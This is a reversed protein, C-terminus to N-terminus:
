GSDSPHGYSAKDLNRMPQQDLKGTRFHPNVEGVEDAKIDNLRQSFVKHAEQRGIVKILSACEPDSLIDGWKSFKHVKNKIIDSFKEMAYMEKTEDVSHSSM